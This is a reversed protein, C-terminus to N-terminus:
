EDDREEAPEGQEEPHRIKNVIVDVAGQYDENVTGLTHWEENALAWLVRVAGRYLGGQREREM